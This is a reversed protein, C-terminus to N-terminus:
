NFTGPNLGTLGRARSTHFPRTLVPSIMNMLNQEVAQLGKSTPKPCTHSPIHYISLNLKGDGIRTRSARDRESVIRGM